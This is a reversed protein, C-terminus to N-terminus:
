APLGALWDHVAADFAGPEEAWPLHGSHELVVLDAHAVNRRIREAESPPCFVDHRGALVLVPVQVNGLREVASWWHLAQMMQVATRADFGAGAFVQRPDSQGTDHFFFPALAHMTAELEADSAPPVRQLVQVEPPTPTADLTDALSESSGLQGPTAAVLVLGAVRAPHRLALELAVSAGHFHGLALTQEAGLRAALAGADDALQELSLPEPATRASRGHGRQDYFVLRLRGALRELGPRLYTHDVGPWGPVVVCSAGDGLVEYHLVTGNVAASAM